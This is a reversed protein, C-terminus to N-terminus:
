SSESVVTAEDEGPRPNRRAEAMLTEFLERVRFNVHRFGWTGIVLWVVLMPFQLLLSYAVAESPSMLQLGALISPIAIQYFIVFLPTMPPRVVVVATAAIITVQITAEHPMAVLVLIHYAWASVWVLLYLALGRLLRRGSVTAQVGGVATTVAKDLKGALEPSLRNARGIRSITEEPHRAIWILLWFAGIVLALGLFVSLLSDSEENTILIMALIFTLLRMIQLFLRDLVLTPTTQAVPLDVGRSIVTLRVGIDPLPILTTVLLAVATSAMVRTFPRASTLFFYWFAVLLGFCLLLILAAAGYLEVDVGSIIAVIEQTDAAVLLVVLLVALVGIVAFGRRKLRNGNGEDSAM